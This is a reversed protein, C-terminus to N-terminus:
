RVSTSDTRGRVLAEPHQDLYDALVRFSRASDSAQSMLRALDRHFQSNDGYGSNVSALTRSANDTASQLSNVIKPLQKMAPELGADLHHMLEEAAAVTGSLSTMMQRVQAGGVVDQSSVLLKNLNQSIQELPLAGIKDVIEGVSRTINELDGPRTPIVPVDGVVAVEAPPADPFFDLALVMSGTLINGSKLQARMGRRVMERAIDVTPRDARMMTFREPEINFKVDVGVQGTDQDLHLAVGTVSGIQIGYLEVPSGTALGRVSGEFHAMFPLRRTFGAAKASDADPFLKFTALNPSVPRTFGDESTDFSVGGALLAQLSEMQVKVGAAGTVVSIGSANWFRTGRHVYSAFPERLFAHITVTSAHDGLDYGLVQGASLGHYFIPSGPGLSGLRDSTLLFTKGPENSEIVPPSELGTFQTAPKGGPAGPDLAIYSGSLLTDLGSIDAGSIRARVVWFRTHDTIVPQAQRSTAVTVNVHSLDPALEVASVTGLEVAKHRLKTKGAQLGDGTAFSITITPGKEAYSRWALFGGIALAVVPIIWIVSVRRRNPIIVAAPHSVPAGPGVQQPDNM